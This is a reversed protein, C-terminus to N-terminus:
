LNLAKKVSRTLIKYGEKNLHLGDQLLLNESGRIEYNVRSFAKQTKKSCISRIEEDSYNDSSNVVSNFIEKLSILFLEDVKKM